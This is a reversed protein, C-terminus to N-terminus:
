KLKLLFNTCIEWTSHRKMQSPILSKTEVDKKLKIWWKKKPNQGLSKQSFNDLRTFTSTWITWAGIQDFASTRTTVNSGSSEEIDEVTINQTSVKTM